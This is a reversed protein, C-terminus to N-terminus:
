RWWVIVYWGNFISLSHNSAVRWAGYNESILYAEELISHKTIM